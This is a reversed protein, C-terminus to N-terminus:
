DKSLRNILEDGYIAKTLGNQEYQVIYKGIQWYTKVLITNTTYAFNKRSIRHNIELYNIKLFPLVIVFNRVNAFSM